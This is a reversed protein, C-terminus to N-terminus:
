NLEYRYVRAAYRKARPEPSADQVYLAKGDRSWGALHDDSANMTVTHVGGQTDVIVVEADDGSPDDEGRSGARGLEVAVRTPDTPSAVIRRAALPALRKYSQSALDYLGLFQGQPGDEAVFLTKADASLEVLSFSSLGKALTTLKQSRALAAEPAEDEPREEGLKGALELLRVQEAQDLEPHIGLLRTRSGSIVDIMEIADIRGDGLGIFITSGDPSWVPVTMNLGAEILLEHSDSEREFVELASPSNRSPRSFFAVRSADPSPVPTSYYESKHTLLPIFEGQPVSILALTKSAGHNALVCAIHDGQDSIEPYSFFNYHEFLATRRLAGAHGPKADVLEFRESTSSLAYGLHEPPSSVHVQDRMVIARGDASEGVWYEEDLMAGLRTRTLGGFNKSENEEAQAIDSARMDLSAQHNNSRIALAKLRAAMLKEMTSASADLQAFQQLRPLKSLAEVLPMAIRRGVHETNKEVAESADVGWLFLRFPSSPVEQTDGTEVDVVSLSLSLVIDSFQAGELPIVKEVQVEGRIVTGIGLEAARELIEDGGLLAFENVRQEIPNRENVLPTLGLPRLQKSLTGHLAAAGANGGWWHATSDDEDGIAIAIVVREPDTQIRGTFFWASVGTSILIVVLMLLKARAQADLMDAPADSGAM